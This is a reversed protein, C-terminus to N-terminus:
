LFNEISEKFCFGAFEYAIEFLLFCIFIWINFVNFIALLFIVVKMTFRYEFFLNLFRDSTKKSVLEHGIEDMLASLICILLIVLNLSPVGFIMCLVIFVILTSLHHIGDVKFAIFNGILIGIFIYAAGVNSFTALYSAVACIVGLVVSLNRNDNIDYVDDSFKMFFGSLTFLIALVIINM